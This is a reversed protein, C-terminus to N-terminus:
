LFSSSLLSVIVERNRSLKFENTQCVSTSVYMSELLRCFLWCLLVKTVHNHYILLRLTGLTNVERKKLIMLGIKPARKEKVLKEVKRYRWKWMESFFHRFHLKLYPKFCECLHKRPFVFDKVFGAYLIKAIIKVEFIM